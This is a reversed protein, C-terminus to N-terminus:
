NKIGLIDDNYLNNGWVQNITATLVRGQTPEARGLFEKHM